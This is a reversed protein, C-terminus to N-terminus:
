VKIPRGNLDPRLMRLFYEEMQKRLYNSETDMQFIPIVKFGKKCTDFHSSVPLVRYEPSTIHQKHLTIRKQLRLSTEGVYLKQCANCCLIYIIYSSTCTMDANFYIKKDNFSIYTKSVKLLPCTGCRNNNCKKVAYNMKFNLINYLKNNLRYCKRLEVNKTVNFFNLLPALKKNIYQINDPDYNFVINVYNNQEIPIKNLKTKNYCKIIADDILKIPYRHRLLISKLELYRKDLIEKDNIIRYLRNALTYPLNIKIHRPHRSTFDIYRQSDTPKRYIDTILRGNKKIITIDLFNTTNRDINFTFKFNPHINSMLETFIRYDGLKNTDWVILCDDLFRWYNEKLLTIQETTFFVQCKDFLIKEVYAMVINAYCPAMKTGMAVGVLQKYYNNGYSFTNNQLVLSIGELVFQIPIDRLVHKYKNYFYHIAELGFDNPIITYLSVVDISIFVSNDSVIKPLKNLFDFSDKIYGTNLSVIPKLFTDFFHSLRSTPVNISNVIPRSKLDKPMYGLNIYNSNMTKCAETILKSKHLKPLVYFSANRYKHKTFYDIEDSNFYPKYSEILRKVKLHIENDICTELKKYTITDNLHMQVLDNYDCRDLIVISGGKDAKCFKINKMKLSKISNYYKTNINYDKRSPDLSEILKINNEANRDKCSFPDNKTPIHEIYMTNNLNFNNKYEFNEKFRLQRCFKLQDLKMVASNANTIPAFKFGKDLLDIESKSFNIKTM